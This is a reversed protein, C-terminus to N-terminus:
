RKQSAVKSRQGSGAKMSGEGGGGGGASKLASLKSSWVELQQILQKRKFKGAERIVEQVFARRVEISGRVGELHHFIVDFDACLLLSLVCVLM